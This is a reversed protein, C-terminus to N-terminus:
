IRHDSDAPGFPAVAILPAHPSILDALEDVFPRSQDDVRSVIVAFRAGEPRNKQSGRSSLLVRAARTPTLRQYPSCDAVAAVRLPRHCQDAIVRGLADAGVCALVITTTTPIIPELPQPAKFPHQRSGDAEVLVHDALGFWRDCTAPAVGLAKHGADSRWMLVARHEDLAASLEADTPAFSVPYGGTRDRGMKTTTTLVTRGDLQHGLAFMTTTKGGGGVLSVHEHAGLDLAAALRDLAIPEAM